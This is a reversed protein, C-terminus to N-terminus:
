DTEARGRDLPNNGTTRDRGRRHRLWALLGLPHEMTIAALYLQVPRAQTFRYLELPHPSRLLFAAARRWTSLPLAETVTTPILEPWLKKLHVLAAAAAATAGWSRVRDIVTEWRFDPQRVIADLDVLWKLKRDFYHSLHHILLHAVLDHDELRRVDRGGIQLPVARELLGAVDISYRIEQALNWHLEFDVTVPGPSVLPLHHSSRIYHTRKPEPPPSWGGAELAELAAPLEDRAVLLDVDDLTRRDFSGYFRHLTDVGKLVVPAVGANRLLDIAQELRALLLINDNRVRARASSLSREVESGFLDWRGAEEIRGHVWTPVGCEHCLAVLRQPQVPHRVVLESVEDWRGRLVALLLRGHIVDSMPSPPAPAAPKWIAFMARAISGTLM